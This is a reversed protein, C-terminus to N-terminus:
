RYDKNRFHWKVQSSLKSSIDMSEKLSILGSTDIIGVAAVTDDDQDIIASVFIKIGKYRGNKVKECATTEGRFMRELPEHEGAIERVCGGDALVAAGNKSKVVVPMMGTVLHLSMALSALERTSSDTTINLSM